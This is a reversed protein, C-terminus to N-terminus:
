ESSRPGDLVIYPAVGRVGKFRIEVPQDGDFVGMILIDRSNSASRSQSTRVTGVVVPQGGLSFQDGRSLHTAWENAM